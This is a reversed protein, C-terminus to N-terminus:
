AILQECPRLTLLSADRRAREAREHVPLPEVAEDRSPLLRQGQAHRHRDLPLVFSLAVRILGYDEGPKDVAVAPEHQGLGFSVREWRGGTGLPILINRERGEVNVFNREIKQIPVALAEGTLARNGYARDARQRVLCPKMLDRM